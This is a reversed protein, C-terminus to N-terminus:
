KENLNKLKDKEAPLVKTLFELANPSYKNAEKNFLEKYREFGLKKIYMKLQSKQDEQPIVTIKGEFWKLTKELIDNEEEVPKSDQKVRTKTRPRTFSIYADRIDKVGIAALLGRFDEYSYEKFAESISLPLKMTETKHFDNYLNFSEIEPIPEYHTNFYILFEKLVRFCEKPRELIENGIGCKTLLNIVKIPMTVPTSRKM